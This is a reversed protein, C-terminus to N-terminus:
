IVQTRKQKTKKFYCRETMYVPLSFRTEVAWVRRGIKIFNLIYDYKVINQSKLFIYLEFNSPAAM